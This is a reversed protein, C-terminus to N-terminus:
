LQRFFASIRVMRSRTCRVSRSISAVLVNRYSISQVLNFLDEISHTQIRSPTQRALFGIGPVPPRSPASRDSKSPSSSCYNLGMLCKFACRFSRRVLSCRFEISRFRAVERMLEFSSRITVVKGFAFSNRGNTSRAIVREPLRLTVFLLNPPERVEDASVPQLSKEHRCCPPM